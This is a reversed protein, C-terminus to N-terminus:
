KQWTLDGKEICELTKILEMNDEHSKVAIRYFGHGLGPYNHCSRILIGRELLLAYLDKESKLFIYNAMPPFFTIELRHLEEILYQREQRITEMTKAVYEKEALAALGAAQAPISVAWSQSCRLMGDLIETNKCICYGLRLGAMAYLKTFARLIFITDNTELEKKLSYIEGDEVFDLFCEDAFLFIKQERCKELIRKMLIPEILQGTPNNPNCLFIVDVDETLEALFDETLRFGTEERLFHYRVVCDMTKLAGEYESFGPALIIATKPRKALVFRYILDAAGNGCLIFGESIEEKKAIARTLEECYPDPYHICDAVAEAAALKVGEPMGLPNINASFDLCVQNSYIDGGHKYDRM